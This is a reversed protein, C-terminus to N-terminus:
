PVIIPRGVGSVVFNRTGRVRALARPPADIAEFTLQFTGWHMGLAMAPRLADFVRVSEAPNVHNEKMVDRPEYAGIPLIALRIPGRRAAEAAWSGDGYGTDGAHYIAGAPTEIRFSSWLARNRDTGYRSSWHHNPEIVVAMGRTRVTQGWNGAVAGIGARKLITDNGLSTVILPRDRKWLAKLTPLDMHDYHNHSVVIVDIRPLDALRIGPARVRKPGAWQVPSARQSWVPDTLINVGGAQVLVTAHGIWTAVMSRPDVSRTCRAWNEVTAGGRLRPCANAARYPYGQRVLVHEPWAAKGIGSFFRAMRAVPRTKGREGPNYFREGDYHDSIPGDYYHQDLLKPVLAGTFALGALLFLLGTGVRKALGRM